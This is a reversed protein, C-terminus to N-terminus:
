NRRIARRSVVTKHGDEFEIQATQSTQRIIRCLQGKRGQRDWYLVYPFPTPDPTAPNTGGLRMIGTRTLKDALKEESNREKRQM